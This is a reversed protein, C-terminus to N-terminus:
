KQSAAANERNWVFRKLFDGMRNWTDVWRSHLMSEHLDDPIVMLEYHVNRARLLQVLGVTQAFDVNRDDDGHVLMVPSKWGDIASIASSRYSVAATDLASGWLHVGALDIGAVFVDSNRALAQATLVGGYSLGWIGVRAPDVDPREQLYKGGALVDQYEANGRGGTNPANRFSRGYGVGSRFNVSVVGYGESALWQNFAYAWHYFQMYHYGPLMQRVPGGHVFVMAPRKEGPKLDRPLFLQNHIELGDPSKVIVVEPTVHANKPFSSALTPYILRAKGGDVPVLGVSAPQSADFYLVAIQRGSALPQPYTEIGDGMSVRRPTGGSTPVAWIHRREIDQANTTYYLTRGDPSLAASTADEILGDTTTLMVPESTGGAASVAFYRDWEDTVPSLPFLIQDGAWLLRNIAAFVRDNPANHWIERAPETSGVTGVMISLTYGGRFTARCLGPFQRDAATLTDAVAGGGGGGRGGFGGGRGVGACIGGRGAAPGAPNGISGTGQQSQQGFPLGPRRIFAVRKSDPSWVPALDFDVGPSLYTVTRTSVDYLGIFSHNDRNSVFAVRSGDPSWRPASNTGWAKIFPAEGKDIPTVPPARTVRARYIQGDRVYLVSRGDPSLEPAGGAALKWPEGGSSRAAWIAREGGDPNHSPNAVWGARNPASGRVFVIVAGDDSISVDSLDVGDDKLFSTLRVPRFDPAAATYVNRMGRDYTMWALRDARRASTIELPSAPSFFQEMTPRSQAALPTTGAILVAVVGCRAFRIGYSM